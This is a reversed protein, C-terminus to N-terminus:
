GAEPPVNGSSCCGWPEHACAAPFPGGLPLLQALPFGPGSWAHSDGELLHPGVLSPTGPVSFPPAQPSLSGGTNIGSPMRHAWLFEGM